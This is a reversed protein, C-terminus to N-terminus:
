WPSVVPAIATQSGTQPICEINAPTSACCRKAARGGSPNPAASSEAQASSTRASAASWAPSSAATIASGTTCPAPPM